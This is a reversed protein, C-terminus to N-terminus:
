SVMANKYADVKSKTTGMCAKQVFAEVIRIKGVNGHAAALEGKRMCLWSDFLSVLDVAGAM